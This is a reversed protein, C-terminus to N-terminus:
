IQPTELIQLARKRRGSATAVSFGYRAAIEDLTLDPETRLMNAIERAQREPEPLRAEAEALAAAKQAEAAKLHAEATAKEEDAARRKAAKERAEAEAVKARDETAKRLAEDALRKAEATKARAEEAQRDSEAAKRKADATQRLLLAADASKKLDAELTKADEEIQRLRNKKEEEMDWNLQAIAKQRETEIRRVEAEEEIKRVEADAEESVKRIEAQSRAQHVQLDAEAKQVEISAATEAKATAVKLAGRAEIELTQAALKEANLKSEAKIRQVEASAKRLEAAQRRLKAKEQQLDPVELAKELTLGHSALQLPALKESPAKFRWCVGYDQRLMARYVRWEQDRSLARTYSSEEYSKMYHAIRMTSIPQLLWRSVRIRDMRVRGKAEGIHAAYLHAGIESFVVWLGALVAHGIQAPLSPGSEWNLYITGAAGLRPIWKVWAAPRDARILLLNILSFALISLDIGIPLMWAEAGWGWGGLRTPLQAKKKVSDYSSYLGLGSVGSAVLVAFAALVTEGKSFRLSAAPAPEDAEASIPNAPSTPATATLTPKGPKAAPTWGNVAPPGPIRTGPAPATTV